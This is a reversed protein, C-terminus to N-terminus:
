CISASRQRFRDIIKGAAQVADCHCLAGHEHAIRAAETVPQIVGTENNALWSRVGAGAGGKGGADAGARGSRGRRQARGPDAGRGDGEAGPTM